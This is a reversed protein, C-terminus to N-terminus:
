MLNIDEVKIASLLTFVSMLACSGAWTAVLLFNNKVFGIGYSAPWLIALIYCATYVERREYSLVQLSTLM